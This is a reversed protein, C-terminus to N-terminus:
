ARRAEEHKRRELPPLVKKAIISWMQQREAETGWDYYLRDHYQCLKVQEGDLWLSDVLETKVAPVKFGARCLICGDNM